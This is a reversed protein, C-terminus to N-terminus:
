FDKGDKRVEKTDALLRPSLNVAEPPIASLGLKLLTDDGHFFSFVTLPSRNNLKKRIVSNIHCTLRTIDSQVLNDFSRGKPLVMRIFEHSREIQPKQFPSSPNCYFVRTRRQGLADFEIAGPNSFESGNDGLLVPFLRSFTERGLTQDLFNFVDIVSQSTNQERLFMPMLDTQLFFLTLIVKGGRNGEVTDMQVVPTDPNEKLYNQFDEYTRGVRCRRDVKFPNTQRRPRFRVKRPLDINRVTLIGQNIIKYITRESCLLKDAQTVCIHHISQSNKVLPTILEDMCLLESETLSIGNRCDHLVKVYKNHAMIARYYYKSLVCANRIKCNNCIYPHNSLLNCQDEKFEPCVKNCKNCRRCFGNCRYKECLGRISCANRHICKNPIRGVAGASTFIRNKRVEKSISSPDKDLSRAIKRFSRGENLGTQIFIRDDLTLHKYKPM